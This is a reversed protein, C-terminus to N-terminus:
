RRAPAPNGSPVRGDGHPGVAARSRRRSLAPAFLDRLPGRPCAPHGLSVVHATHRGGGRLAPRLRLGGPVFVLVRVPGLVARPVLGAARRRHREAFAPRPGHRLLPAGGPGHARHRGLPFGPLPRNRGVPASAIVRPKGGASRHLGCRHDRGDRANRPARSLAGGIHDGGIPRHRRPECGCRPAGARFVWAGPGSARRRRCSLGGGRRRHRAGASPAPRPLGCTWPRAFNSGLVHRLHRPRVHLDRRVAPLALREYSLHHRADFAARRVRVLPEGKRCHMGNGHRERESRGAERWEVRSLGRDARSLPSARM